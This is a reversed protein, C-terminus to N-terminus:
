KLEGFVPKILKDILIEKEAIADNLYHNFADKFVELQEGRLTTVVSRDAKMEIRTVPRNLLQEQQSKLADLEKLLTTAERLQEHNM